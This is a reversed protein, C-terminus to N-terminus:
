DRCAIRVAPAEGDGCPGADLVAWLQDAREELAMNVLILEMLGRSNMLAVIRCVLLIVTLQLFLHLALQFNGSM